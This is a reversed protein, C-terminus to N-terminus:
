ESYKARLGVLVAGAVKKGRKKSGYLKGAETAIKEFGKGPLGIDKGARAKKASYSKREEVINGITEVDMEMMVYHAEDVTNVHGNNFLYELVLDYADYSEKQNYYDMVKQRKSPSMKELDDKVSAQQGMKEITGLKKFDDIRKKDADTLDDNSSAPAPQVSPAPSVKATPPTIPPAPKNSVNPTNGAKNGADVLQYASQPARASTPAAPKPAPTPAAPKPAKAAAINKSGQDMVQTSTQGKKSMAAFGGGAKFLNQNGTKQVESASLNPNAKMAAAGGGAKFAAQGGLSKAANFKNDSPGKKSKDGTLGIADTAMQVGAPVLSALTGVGPALSLGAGLGSLAAGGWDGKKSRNVADMGYLAAGVGPAARGAIKGVPGKALKSVIGAGPIKSVLGKAFNAANSVLGGAAQTSARGASKAMAGAASRIGGGGKQINSAGANLVRGVGGRLSDMIGENLIQFQESIYEDSVAVSEVIIYGESFNIYDEVITDEAAESFYSIVDEVNYGQSFLVYSANDIMELALKQMEQEPAYVQAYAEMLGKADAGTITPM